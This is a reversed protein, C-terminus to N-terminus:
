VLTHYNNEFNFKYNIVLNYLILFGIAMISLDFVGTLLQGGKDFLNNVPELVATTIKHERASVVLQETLLPNSNVIKSPVKEPTEVVYINKLDESFYMGTISDQDLGKYIDSLLAGELPGYPTNKILHLPSHFLISHFQRLPSYFAQCLPLLVLCLYKMYYM